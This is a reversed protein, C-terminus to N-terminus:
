GKRASGVRLSLVTYSLAQGATRKAASVLAAESCFLWKLPLTAPPTCPGLMGGGDAPQGEGRPSRGGVLASARPPWDEEM